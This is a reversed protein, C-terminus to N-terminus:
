FRRPLPSVSKTQLTQDFAGRVAGGSASADVGGEVHTKFGFLKEQWVQYSVTFGSANSVTAPKNM